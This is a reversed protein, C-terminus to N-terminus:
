FFKDFIKCRYMEVLDFRFAEQLCIINPQLKEVEDIQHSFRETDLGDEGVWCNLTLIRLDNQSGNEMM